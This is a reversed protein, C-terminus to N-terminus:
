NSAAALDLSLYPTASLNPLANQPKYFTYKELKHKRPLIPKLLISYQVSKSM